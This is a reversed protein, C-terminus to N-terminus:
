RCMTRHHRARRKDRDYRKKKGRRMQLDLCRGLKADRASCGIRLHMHDAHARSDRPRLMTRRARRILWRPERTKKAYDLLWTRIRNAMFVREVPVHADTIVAKIFLWNAKVDFFRLPIRWKKEPSECDYARGDKRFMAMHSDPFFPKGRMGKAYYLLDADRGSQHSRHHEAPGGYRKALDAIGLVSGPVQKAVKAAARKLLGVLEDTGYRLGRTRWPEPIVFGNGRYPLVAPNILRGRNTRGCSLSRLSTAKFADTAATDLPAAASATNLRDAHADAFLALVGALVIFVRLGNM